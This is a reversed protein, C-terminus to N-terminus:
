PRGYTCPNQLSVTRQYAQGPQADQVEVRVPSVGLSDCGGQAGTPLASLLVLLLALALPAARV